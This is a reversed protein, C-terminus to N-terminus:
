DGVIRVRYVEAQRKSENAMEVSYSFRTFLMFGKTIGRMGKFRLEETQCQALVARTVTLM